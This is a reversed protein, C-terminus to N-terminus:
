AKNSGGYIAYIRLELKGFNHGIFVVEVRHGGSVAPAHFAFAVSAVARVEVGLFLSPFRRLFAGLLFASFSKEVVLLALDAFPVSVGFSPVFERGASLGFGLFVFM